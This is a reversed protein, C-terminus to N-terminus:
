FTLKGEPNAFNQYVRRVGEDSLPKGKEHLESSSLMDVLASTAIDPANGALRKVVRDDKQLPRGRGLMKTAATIAAIPIRKPFKANLYDVLGISASKNLSKSKTRAVPSVSSRKM